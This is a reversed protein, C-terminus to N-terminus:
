ACFSPMSGFSIYTTETMGQVALFNSIVRGSICFPPQGVDVGDDGRALQGMHNALGAQVKGVQGLGAKVGRQADGGARRIDEAYGAADHLGRQAGDILQDGAALQRELPQVDGGNLAVLLDLLGLQLQFVAQRM